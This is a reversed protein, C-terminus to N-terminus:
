DQFIMEPGEGKGENNEIYFVCSELYIMQGGVYDVKKAM